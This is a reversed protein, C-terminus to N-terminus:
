PLDVTLRAIIMRGLAPAGVFERHDNDLVNKATVDAHFSPLGPLINGRRLDLVSYSDVSGIFPGWRVPFDDVFRGTAGATFGIPLGYDFGWKVKLPPASLARPPTGPADGEFQEDSAVSVNAFATAM